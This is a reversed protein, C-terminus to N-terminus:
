TPFQAGPKLFLYTIQITNANAGGSVYSVTLNECPYSPISFIQNTSVTGLTVIPVSGVTAVNCQVSLTSGAPGAGGFYNFVVYGSMTGYPATILSSTFNSGASLNGAVAITKNYYSADIDGFTPGLTVSTGTYAATVRTAAISCGIQVKVVPYYGSATVAGTNGTIAKDSIQFFTVGDNSGQIFALVPETGTVSFTLSHITQGLNPVIVSITPTCAINNAITASITQPSTYGIFQARSPSALAALLSLLLVFRKM